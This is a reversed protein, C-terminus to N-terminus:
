AARGDAGGSRRRTWDAVRAARERARRRSLPAGDPVFAELALLLLAPALFWAHRETRVQTRRGTLERSEMGLVARAIVTLELESASAQAFIGGTAEAIRRLMAVDLRSMVVEGKEDRLFGVRRGGPGGADEVPIPTGETRGIGVCHVVVGAEALEEAAAVADGGHDEGDTILVVVAHRGSREPFSRGALRLAPGIATGPRQLLDPEMLDLFLKATAHDLTLPCAVRADGSFAILGVRDGGLGDILAAVELRARALRSPRVDEALMSKSTDLCVFVDVGRRRLEQESLGWQPRAAAVSLLLLASGGLFVRLARTRPAADEVLRSVAAPLGLRRGARRRALAALAELLLLAPAAWAVHLWQPEQLVAGALFLAAGAGVATLAVGAAALVLASGQPRGTV